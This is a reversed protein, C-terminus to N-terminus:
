RFYTEKHITSVMTFYGREAEFLLGDRAMLFHFLRRPLGDLVPQCPQDRDPVHHGTDGVADGPVGHAEIRRAL